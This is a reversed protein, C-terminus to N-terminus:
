FRYRIEGIITRGPLPLDGPILPVPVGNPSPERADEDFLNKVILAAEFKRWLNSRRLAMDVLVYDDVSARPDNIERERDMVWNARLNLNYDPLFGWNAQVYFQQQPANAAEHDTRANTSKQWVYNATFDLGSRPTWKSELEIGSGTQRGANQATNTGGVPDPIFQIIDEWQYYFINFITNFGHTSKYDFALELSRLTESDLSPNGLAAPNNINRTETFAPARFAEAYLLKTTLRNTTSWVLALRPNITDGFDSYHDYRLGATLEWDNALNFIDQVYIYYNKRTSERLFVFPTDSVDVVGGISHIYECSVIDTCYNKEENVRYLDGSYYGLGLSLDHDKLGLYHFSTNLRVHREFVEPNGVVGDPFLGLLPNGHEDLSSGTSGPPFLLVDKEVEQTANLFSASFTASLDRMLEPITYTLDANIRQSKFEGSRDLAQVVGAGSGANYRGQYGTRVILNGKRYDLRFDLSDRQLNVRGPALSVQTGTIADLYSQADAGIRGRQGDTTSAELVVGLSSDSWATGYSAMLNTTDYTGHSAGVELGKLNEGSKTIINIVGAFADAGYIASGPGRIVEIRQIAEVPMGGWTNSRNGAFLNTVPIGNILMLVQPNFDSYIGRFTYIPNYGQHNRAVHLGPVAELVEDIDMAGMRKIDESTIISAVAPAKSVPQTYGTAISILEESGYLGLLENEYLDDPWGPQALSVLCFLLSLVTKNNHLNM